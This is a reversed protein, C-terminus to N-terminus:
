NRNGLTKRANASITRSGVQSLRILTEDSTQNSSAVCLTIPADYSTDSPKDYRERNRDAVSLIDDMVEPPTSPNRSLACMLNRQEDGRLHRRFGEFLVQAEEATLSEASAIEPLKVSIESSGWPGELLARRAAASEKQSELEAAFEAAREEEQKTAAGAATWSELDDDFRSCLEQNSSIEGDLADALDRNTILSNESPAAQWNAGYAFENPEGASEVGKGLNFYAWDYCWAEDWDAREDNVEYVVVYYPGGPAGCELVTSAPGESGSKLPTEPVTGALNTVEEDDCPIDAESLTQSMEFPTVATDSNGSCGVVFLCTAVTLSTCTVFTKM